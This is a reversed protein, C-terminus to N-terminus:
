SREVASVIETAESAPTGVRILRLAAPFLVMTTIYCLIMTASVLAGLKLNPYLRATLLVSFGGALVAANYLLARGATLATVEAARSKDPSERLCDLYRYLYHIAFDVGIGLAMAGLLSTAIDTPLGVYGMGGYILTIALSVPAITLLGLTFRGFMLWALAFLAPICIALTTLQSTNVEREVRINTYTDGALKATVPPDQGPPFLESTLAIARDVVRNATATGNDRISVFVHAHRYDYDVLDDFDGPDGSISYLLLYQAVLDRSDPVIEADARDENMVRNMRKVLEAISFTDGVVDLQEMGAQLRDLRALMAPEKLADIEAGDIMIDLMTGGSFRENDVTDALRIHHSPRFQSIRSSDTELRLMGAGGAVVIAIISTLVLTPSSDALRAPAVLLADIRSARGVAADPRKARDSQLPLLSLVAPILLLTLLLASTIGAAMIIGMDHLPPIRSATMSLFGIATTVSTMLVPPAMSTMTERVIAERDAGPHEDQVEYYRAMLHIADAIAIAAILVPLMSTVTYMAHGWLALTGLMWIETCLLVAFPVLVGRASRFSLFLFVALLALVLPLTRRVEATIYWGFLGELVPRGTVHFQEPHGAANLGDFYDHLAFYTAVRDSAGEASERVVIAAGAGDYSALLGLYMGNDALAKRLALAQTRDSAPKEMFPRVVMGSDDGRIDNVTTFSRLDVSRGTEFAPQEELWRSVEAILALSDPNYIGDPHDDRVILIRTLYTTGFIEELEHLNALSDDGVPVFGDFNTNVHLTPLRSAFGITIALVVVLTMVPHHVVMSVLRHQM